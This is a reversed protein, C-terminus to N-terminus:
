SLVHLQNPVQRLEAPLAFHVNEERTVLEEVGAGRSQFFNVIGEVLIEPASAGSTLGVTEVGQLWERRIKSVDSILYSAVGSGIAEEVLRNSNSSNSAGVVLVLDAVRALERVALQRNQTAYCIDESPPGQIMPFRQRLAAIIERTDELSLTTQTLYAIKEPDEVELAQVDEINSVLVTSEPAEGMTGVVEEHGEHGILVVTFGQKSYRVAEVHVKTVLPCTADIVNLSRTRAEAWVQPSVGHASFIVTGGSPVQDLSDVFVAGEQRLEDVVYANHIIQKRVYIPPPCVELAVRVVDIARVVGACFGRPTALILKKVM